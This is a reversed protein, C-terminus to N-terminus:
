EPGHSPGQMNISFTQRMHKHEKPKQSVAKAYQSEQRKVEMTKVQNLDVRNLAIGQQLSAFKTNNPKTNEKCRDAAAEKAYVSPQAPVFEYKLATVSRNVQKGFMPSTPERTKRMSEIPQALFDNPSYGRAASNAHM